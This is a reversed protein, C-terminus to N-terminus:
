GVGEAKLYRYVTMRTVKLAAAIEAPKLGKKHLESARSPTAKFTGKRRGCKEQYVGRKKAAKIGEQQRERRLENEMEAVAFLVSAIMKGTPGSFDMAQSVAVIRIGKDLLDCLTNIGDRLTRSLRDLKYVVVTQVEGHFIAAQLKTFAPRNLNTGSAKDVFWVPNQIGNGDLWRQIAERQGAENQEVTSVRVYVAVGSKATM